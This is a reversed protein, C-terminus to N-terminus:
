CIAEDSVETNEVPQFGHFPDIRNEGCSVTHGLENLIVCMVEVTDENFLVTNLSDHFSQSTLTDIYVHETKHCISIRM